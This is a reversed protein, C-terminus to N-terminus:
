SRRILSGIEANINKPNPTDDLTTIADGNTPPVLAKKKLTENETSLATVQATSASLQTNLDLITAQVDSATSQATVLDAQLAQLDSQLTAITTDKDLREQQLADQAESPSADSNLNFFKSIWTGFDSWNKM